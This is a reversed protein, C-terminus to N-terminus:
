GAYGSLLHAYSGDAYVYQETVTINFASEGATSHIHMWLDEGEDKIGSAVLDIVYDASGDAVVAGDKDIIQLDKLWRAEHGEGEFRLQNEVAANTHVKLYRLNGPIHVGGVYAYGSGAAVDFSNEAGDVVHQVPQEFYAAATLYFAEATATSHAHLVSAKGEEKLNSAVLDIIYDQSGDEVVNGDKDIIAGDKLWKAGDVGEFRIENAVTANTKVHLYRVDATLDAGAVYAYGAGAPIDANIVQNETIEVAPLVRYYKANIYFDSAGATSHIHMWLDAGEAKIGSAVLDIIYDSSGDEVVDGDIDIIAGDKLWKAGDSGEFRIENAVKGDTQIHLYNVDALLHVGGVYAYGEGEPVVFEGATTEEIKAEPKYTDCFFISDILLDGTGTYYIDMNDTGAGFGSRVIDIIYLKYDDALNYVYHESDEPITPLGAGAVWDNAWVTVSNMTIRLGGLTTGKMALVLYEKGAGSGQSGETVQVYDYDGGAITLHGDAISTYEDGHYSISYYLGDNAVAEDAEASGTEYSSAIHSKTRSFKDFYTAGPIDIYPYETVPAENQLNSLFIKSIVVGTTSKFTLKAGPTLNSNAFNIVYSTFAGNVAGTLADGAADKLNAYTVDNITLGSTDGMVNIVLNQYEGVEIDKTVYTQGKDLTVGKQVIFGTSDRWWCTDDTKNVKERNFSDLITKEGANYLFVNEIELVASCEEGLAYLHFGLIKDLVATGSEGGTALEYQTAGDLTQGPSVIIEQWQDTLEPLEEQDPNLAESLKIPYVKWADDGRLGLVLNSNKIAKNGVARIKFGIGEYDQIQYNGTAMKYIAADPSTPENVDNSDVLTRLFPSNFLGTTEGTPTASSFDEVMMDFEDRYQRLQSPNEVTSVFPSQHEIQPAPPEPPDSESTGPGPESSSSPPNNGSSEGSETKSSSKFCSGLMLSTAALLIILKKKNM